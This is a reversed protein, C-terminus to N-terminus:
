PAPSLPLPTPNGGRGTINPDRHHPAGLVGDGRAKDRTDSNEPQAVTGAPDATATLSTVGPVPLSFFQGQIRDAGAPVRRSPPLPPLRHPTGAPLCGPWRPGAPERGARQWGCELINGQPLESHLLHQPLGFHAGGM